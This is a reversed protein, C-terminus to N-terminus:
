WCVTNIGWKEPPTHLSCHVFSALTWCVFRWRSFGSPFMTRRIREKSLWEVRPSLFPFTAHCEERRPLILTFMTVWLGNRKRIICDIVRFKSSCCNVALNRSDLKLLTIRRYIAVSSISHVSLSLFISSRFSDVNKFQLSLLGSIFTKLISGLAFHFFEFFNKM